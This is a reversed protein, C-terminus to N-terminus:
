RSRCTAPQRPRPAPRPGESPASGTLCTGHPYVSFLREISRRVDVARLPAGNSYTVQDVPRLKFTYTRGGDTPTPVKDALDAVPTLGDSGGVRKFGVLGDNTLPVHDLGHLEEASEAPDLTSPVDEGIITITGGTHSGAVARATFWADGGAAAIGRPRSRVPIRRVIGSTAPDIQVIDAASAVTVWVSGAAAVAGPEAGVPVLAAVSNTAPDIRSVTGDRSNVVWM